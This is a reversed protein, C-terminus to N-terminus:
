FAGILRLAAVATLALLLANFLKTRDAGARFLTEFETGFVSASDEVPGLPRPTFLADCGGLATRWGAPATALFRRILSSKGIGAEGSVLAVHGRGGAVGTMLASLSALAKDREILIARERPEAM